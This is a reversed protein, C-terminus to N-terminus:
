DILKMERDKAVTAVGPLKEIAPILNPAATFAIVKVRELEYHVQGGLGAIQQSLIKLDAVDNTSLLYRQM